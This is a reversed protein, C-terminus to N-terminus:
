GEGQGEVEGEEVYKLVLNRYQVMNSVMATARSVQKVDHSLAAPSARFVSYWNSTVVIPDRWIHYAYQLWIDELWSKEGAPALSAELALLQPFFPILLCFCSSSPFM